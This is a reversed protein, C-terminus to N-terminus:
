RLYVNSYLWSENNCIKKVDQEDSSNCYPFKQRRLHDICLQRYKKKKKYILKQFENKEGRKNNFRLYTKYPCDFHGKLIETTIVQKLKEKM